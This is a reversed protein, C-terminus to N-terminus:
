RVTIPELQRENARLQLMQSVRPDGNVVIELVYAGPAVPEDLWIIGKGPVRDAESVTGAAEGDAGVTKNATWKRQQGTQGSPNLSISVNGHVSPDFPQGSGEFLELQLACGPELQVDELFGNSGTLLFTHRYTQLPLLQGEADTAVLLIGYEGAPLPPLEYRGDEAATRRAWMPQGLQWATERQEARIQFADVRVNQVPQQDLTRVMLTIGAATVAPTLFVDLQRSPEGAAPTVLAKQTFPQMGNAEILLDGQVSRPLALEAMSDSAEGRMVPQEIAGRVKTGAQRFTWRFSPIAAHSVIDRVTVVVPADQQPADTAAPEDPTQEQPKGDAPEPTATQFRDREATATDVDTAHSEEADPDENTTPAVTDNGVGFAFYAGAAVLCLILIALAARM